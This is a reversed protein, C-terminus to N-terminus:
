GFASNMSTILVKLHQPLMFSNWWSKKIYKNIYLKNVIRSLHLTCNCAITFNDPALQIKQMYHCIQNSFNLIVIFCARPHSAASCQRSHTTRQVVDQSIFHALHLRKNILSGNSSYNAVVFACSCVSKASSAVCESLELILSSSPFSFHGDPFVLCQATEHFQILICLHCLVFLFLEIIKWEVLLTKSKKADWFFWLSTGWGRGLGCETYVPKLCSCGAETNSWPM